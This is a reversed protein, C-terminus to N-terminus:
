QYLISGEEDTEDHYLGGPDLVVAAILLLGSALTFPTGPDLL